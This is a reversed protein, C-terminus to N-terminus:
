MNNCHSLHCCLPLRVFQHRVHFHMFCLHTVLSRWTSSFHCGSVCMLAQQINRSVLCLIHACHLPPPHHTEATIVAVHFVLWTGLLWACSDCWLICLTKILEDIQILLNHGLFQTHLQIDAEIHQFHHHCHQFIALNTGLSNWSHKCLIQFFLM